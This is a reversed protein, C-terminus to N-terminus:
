GSGSPSPSSFRWARDPHQYSCTWVETRESVPAGEDPEAHAGHWGSYSGDRATIEAVVMASVLDMEMGGYQEPIIVATLGLEAAKKLTKEAEPLRNLKLYVVGLNNIAEANDSDAALAKQFEDKKAKSEIM